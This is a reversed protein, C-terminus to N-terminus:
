EHAEAARAAAPRGVEGDLHPRRLERGVVRGQRLFLRPVRPGIGCLIEYSITDCLSAMEEVRLEDEGQRGIIVVEDGVAVDPVETVDVMCMDMCVRGIVPVRRGRVLMWGRNSLVRPLGDAYGCTVLGVLSRRRARWTRGYSVSEGPELWTLRVIRSKLSLVPRLEVDSRPGAPYCGYVGVGPRVMELSMEPMDLITATNSVHRVPVWDLEAAVSLFLRYQELTFTKDGDEASAFHTFLGEVRLTPVQRLFRALAIAEHPPLGFRHLGTDVKLHVPQVVGLAAAADALALALERGAVTPIVGLEVLRRAQSPESPGMVLIPAEIGGARLEEAEELCVVCLGDAGADLAARSIALAGHGYANAKVVAWLQAGQARAKLARVNHSLADLDVEAWLPRGRWLGIEEFM